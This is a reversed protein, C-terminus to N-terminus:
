NAVKFNPFWYTLQEVESIEEYGLLDEYALIPDIVRKFVPVEPIKSAAANRLLKEDEATIRPGVFIRCIADREFSAIRDNKSQEVDTFLLLRWEKEDSWDTHKFYLMSSILHQNLTMDNNFFSSPCINPKTPTYIVPGFHGGLCSKSPDTSFEIVSGAHNDGYTGWM